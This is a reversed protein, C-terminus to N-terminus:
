TRGGDIGGAYLTGRYATQGGDWSINAHSAVM